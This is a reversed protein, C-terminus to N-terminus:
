YNNQTIILLTWVAKLNVSADKTEVLFIYYTHIELSKHPWTYLNHIIPRRYLDVKPHLHYVGREGIFTLDSAQLGIIHGRGQGRVQGLKIKSSYELYVKLHLIM